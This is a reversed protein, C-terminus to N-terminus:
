INELKKIKKALENGYYICGLTNPHTGDPCFFDMYHPVLEMGDIVTINEFSECVGRLIGRFEEIKLNTTKEKEKTNERWIPLIAYIKAKPFIQSLKKYYEKAFKTMDREHVWDNTGYAVFVTDPDYPINEDLDNVDYLGAGVGQNVCEANFHRAAVNAYCLSPFETIYGQTISDGFFMFKRDKKAPEFAAGDSLEFNSIEVGFLCPLYITIRKRGLKLDMSFNIDRNEKAEYGFHGTLLGDVYVDIYCLIQGSAHIGLGDFTLKESDTYFDINMCSTARSKLLKHIYNETEIFYDVQKKTFRYMRLREDKEETRLAGFLAKKLENNEIKM